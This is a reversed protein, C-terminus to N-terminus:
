AAAQDRFKKEWRARSWEHFEKATIENNIAAALRKHYDIITPFTVCPLPLAGQAAWNKVAMYTVGCANGLVGWGAQSGPTNVRAIEAARYLLNEPDNFQTRKM